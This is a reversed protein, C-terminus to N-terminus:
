RKEAKRLAFAAASKSGMMLLFGGLIPWALDVRTGVTDVGAFALLIALLTLAFIVAGVLYTMIFFKAAKM